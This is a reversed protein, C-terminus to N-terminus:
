NEKRKPKRLPKIPKEPVNKKAARLAEIREKKKEEVSQYLDPSVKQLHAMLAKMDIKHSVVPLTEGPHLESQKGASVLRRSKELKLDQPSKAMAVEGDLTYLNTGIIDGGTETVFETGRVGMTAAKTHIQFNPLTGEKTVVARVLGQELHFSGFRHKPKSSYSQVTFDSLPSVWIESQDLFIIKVTQGDSTKFSDNAYVPGTGVLSRARPGTISLTGQLATMKGLSDAPVNMAANAATNTVTGTTATDAASRSAASPAGSNTVPDASVMAQYLLPILFLGLMWRGIKKIKLKDKIIMMRVRTKPKLIM